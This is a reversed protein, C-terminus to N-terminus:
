DLWCGYCQQWQWRRMLLCLGQKSKANNMYNLQKTMKNMLRNKDRGKNKTQHKYHKVTRANNMRRHINKQAHRDTAQTCTHKHPWKSFKPGAHTNPLHGEWWLIQSGWSFSHLFLSFCLRRFVLFLSRPLHSLFLSFLISLCLLLLASVSSVDWVRHIFICKINSPVIPWKWYIINQDCYIHM